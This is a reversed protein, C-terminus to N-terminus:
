PRAALWARAVGALGDPTNLAPDDLVAELLHKQLEGLWPGGPRVALAMLATGDLALEKATMGPFRVAELRHCARSWEMRVGDWWEQGSQGDKGGESWGKGWRDALSFLEWEHPQLGAETIRKLLRRYGADSLDEKPHQPFPLL